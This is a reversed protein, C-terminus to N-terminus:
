LRGAITHRQMLNASIDALFDAPEIGRLARSSSRLALITDGAADTALALASGGPHFPWDALEIPQGDPVQDLVDALELELQRTDNVVLAEAFFECLTADFRGFEADLCRPCWRASRLAGLLRRQLLGCRTGFSLTSSTVADDLVIPGPQAAMGVFNELDPYQRNSGTIGVLRPMGRGGRAWAQGIADLVPVLGATRDGGSPGASQGASRPLRLYSGHPVSTPSDCRAIGGVANLARRWASVSRDSTAASAGSDAAPEAAPRGTHGSRFWTDVAAGFLAGATADFRGHELAAGLYQIGGAEGFALAIPQGRAACLARTRAVLVAKSERRGLDTPEDSPALAGFFQTSVALLEQAATRAPSVSPAPRLVVTASGPGREAGAAQSAAAFTLSGWACAPPCEDAHVATM